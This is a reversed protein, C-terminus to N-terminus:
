LNYPRASETQFINECETCKIYSPGSQQLPILLDKAKYCTPCAFHHPEGVHELLIMGFNNKTLTYKSSKDTESQAKSLEQKLEQNEQQLEFIAAQINIITQQVEMIEKNSAMALERAREEAKGDIVASALEKTASLGTGLSKLGTMLDLM